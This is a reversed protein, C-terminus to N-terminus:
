CFSFLPHLGALYFSYARNFLLVLLLPRSSLNIYIYRFIWTAGSLPPRSLHRRAVSDTLLGSFRFCLNTLICFLIQPGVQASFPNGWYHFVKYIKGTKFIAGVASFIVDRSALQRSSDLSTVIHYYIPCLLFSFFSM